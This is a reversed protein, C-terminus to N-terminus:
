PKSITPLNHISFHDKPMPPNQKRYGSSILKTHQHKKKRNKAKNIKAKLANFYNLIAYYWCCSCGIKMGKVLGYLETLRAYNESKFSSITPLLKIAELKHHAKM